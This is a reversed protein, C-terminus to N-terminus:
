GAFRFLAAVPTHAPIIEPPVPAVAGGTLLTDRVALELLDTDGPQAEHHLHVAGTHADLTGWQPGDVAVLLTAIRGQAAAPVVLRLDGTARETDVLDAYRALVATEPRALLPQAREWALARLEEASQEDPNGAIGQEALAPYESVQRYLVQLSDVAALVLPPQAVPLLTRIGKDLARCYRRIETKEVDGGGGGGFFVAGPRGGHGPTIGSYLRREHTFDDYQLAEALSHPTGPPLAIEVAEQATCRLLRARNQSFALVYFEGEYIFMALLPRIYFRDAVVCTEAFSCPAQYHRLIGPALFLALGGAPHQWIAEDDLLRHAPKLFAHIEPPSMGQAALDAEAKRLLNRLRVRNEPLPGAEESMYISVCPGTEQALLTELASKSVISM